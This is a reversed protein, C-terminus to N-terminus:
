LSPRFTNRHFLQALSINGRFMTEEVHDLHQERTLKQFGLRRNTNSQVNVEGSQRMMLNNFQQVDVYPRIM